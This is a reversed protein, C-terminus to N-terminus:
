EWERSKWRSEELILEVKDGDNLVQVFSAPSGNVLIKYDRIRSSDITKYALLDVVTPEFQEIKMEVVDGEQLVADEDALAGNIRVIRRSKKLEVPRGNFFVKVSEQPEENNLLDKV